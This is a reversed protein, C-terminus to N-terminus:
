LKPTYCEDIWEDIKLDHNHPDIGQTCGPQLLGPTHCFTQLFCKSVHQSGLQCPSCVSSGVSWLQVKSHSRSAMLGFIVQWNPCSPELHLNTATDHLKFHLITFTFSQWVDQWLMSYLLTETCTLTSAQLEVDWQVSKWELLCLNQIISAVPWHLLSKWVIRGNGMQNSGTVMHRVCDSM